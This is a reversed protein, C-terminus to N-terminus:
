TSRVSRPSRTGPMVRGLETMYDLLKIRITEYSVSTLAPSVIAAKDLGPRGEAFGRVFKYLVAHTAFKLDTAKLSMKLADVGGANKVVPHDLLDRTLRNDFDRMDSDLAKAPTVGSAKYNKDHFTQKAYPILEKDPVVTVSIGQTVEGIRDLPPGYAGAGCPARVLDTRAGRPM